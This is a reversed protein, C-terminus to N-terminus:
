FRIAHHLLPERVMAPLWQLRLRWRVYREEWRDMREEFAVVEKWDDLEEQTPAKAEFTAFEVYIDEDVEFRLREANWPLNLTKQNHGTLCVHTLQLDYDKPRGFHYFADRGAQTEPINLHVDKIRGERFWRVYTYNNPPM